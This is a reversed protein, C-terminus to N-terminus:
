RKPPGEQRFFTNRIEYDRVELEAKVGALMRKRQALWEQYVDCRGHCGVERYPCGKCPAIRVSM